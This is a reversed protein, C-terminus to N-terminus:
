IVGHKKALKLLREQEEEKENSLIDKRLKKILSHYDDKSDLSNEMKNVMTQLEEILGSIPAFNMTKNCKRMEELVECATRNRYGYYKYDDLM